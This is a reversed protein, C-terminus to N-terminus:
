FWLSKCNKKAIASEPYGGKFSYSYSTVPSKLKSIAIAQTRSDLGGSLPLIVKNHQLQEAVIQEFLATYEELAKEFTIKRPSYHWQFWPKSEILFGNEDLINESAAPLVKKDKWYTDTDLFFGTAAFICIAQHDLEHPANTKAFQQCIPIIPTKITPM